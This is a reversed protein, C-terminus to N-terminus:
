EIFAWVKEPPGDSCDGHGCGTRVCNAEKVCLRERFHPAGHSRPWKAPVAKQGAKRRRRPVHRRRCGGRRRGSAPRQALEALASSARPRDGVANEVVDWM